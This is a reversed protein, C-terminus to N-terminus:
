EVKKLTFTTENSHTKVIKREEYVDQTEVLKMTDNEFTFTEGRPGNKYRFANTKSDYTFWHTGWLLSYGNFLVRNLDNEGNPYILQYEGVELGFVVHEKNHEKQAKMHSTMRELHQNVRKEFNKRTYKLAEVRCEREKKQAPNTKTKDILRRLRDSEYANQPQRLFWPRTVKERRVETEFEELSRSLALTRCEIQETLAKNQRTDDTKFLVKEENEYPGCVSKVIILEFAELRRKLADLSQM